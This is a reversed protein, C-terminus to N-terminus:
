GLMRLRRILSHIPTCTVSTHIFTTKCTISRSESSSGSTNNNGASSTKGATRCDHWYRHHSWTCSSGTVAQSLCFRSTHVHTHTCTHPDVRTAESNISRQPLLSIFQFCFLPILPPPVSNRLSTRRTRRKRELRMAARTVDSCKTYVKYYNSMMIIVCVYLSLILAVLLLVVCTCSM